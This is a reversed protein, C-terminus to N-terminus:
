LTLQSLDLYNIRQGKNGIVWWATLDFNPRKESFQSTKSIIPTIFYFLDLAIFKNGRFYVHQHKPMRWIDQAKEEQDCQECEKKM